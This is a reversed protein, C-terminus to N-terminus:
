GPNMYAHIKRVRSTLGRRQNVALQLDLPAVPVDHGRWRVHELRAAAAPGQEHPEPEDVDAHVGAVWEFLCGSFARGGSDALWGTMATVPEVLLDEFLTGALQASDVCFDLDGPGVDIGRLALAGSGYLFWRLQSGEARELFDELAQCWPVPRRRASQLLMEQLHRAFNAHTRLVDGTTSLRRVFRDAAAPAFGMHLLQQQYLQDGTHVEYIAQRRRIEVSTALRAAPHLVQCVTPEPAVDGASDDREM